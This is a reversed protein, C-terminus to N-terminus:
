LICSINDPSSWMLLHLINVLMELLSFREIGIWHPVNRLWSEQFFNRPFGIMCSSLPFTLNYKELLSRDFLLIEVGLLLIEEERRGEKSYLGAFAKTLNSSTSKVGLM